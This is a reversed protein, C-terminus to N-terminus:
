PPPDARALERQEKTVLWEKSPKYSLATIRPWWISVGARSTMSTVGGNSSHLLELVKSRLSQPIVVREKYLIVPAQATLHAKAALVAEAKLSCSETRLRGRRCSYSCSRCSCTRM